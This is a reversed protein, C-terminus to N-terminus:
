KSVGMKKAMESDTKSFNSSITKMQKAMDLSLTHVSNLTKKSDEFEKVYKTCTEAEWISPLAKVTKEMKSICDKYNAAEKELASASKALEEYDLKLMVKKGGKKM